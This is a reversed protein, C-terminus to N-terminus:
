KRLIMQMELCIEMMTGQMEMKNKPTFVPM